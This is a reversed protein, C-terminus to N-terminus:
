GLAHLSFIDGSLETPLADSQLTLRTIQTDGTRDLCRPHRKSDTGQYSDMRIRHHMRPTTRRAMMPSYDHEGKGNVSKVQHHASGNM